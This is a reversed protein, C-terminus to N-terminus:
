KNNKAMTYKSSATLNPHKKGSKTLNEKLSSSKLSIADFVESLTQQKSSRLYHYWLFLKNM